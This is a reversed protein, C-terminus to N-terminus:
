DVLNWAVWVLRLLHILFMLDLSIGFPQNNGTVIRYAERLCAEQGRQCIEQM